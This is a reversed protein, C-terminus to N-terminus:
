MFHIAAEIGAIQGACLQLSGAADQIDGKIASLIAKSIIRRSTECIGIPRVGPCKNLAILRCALFASLGKPDRFSTCLSRAFMAMSNCLDWSASHFSTCLRRWCYADLGSPGAAGKTNLAASRICSSDIRDYIVPHVQPPEQHDLVLADAIAPQAPPHKSRLVELVSPSTPDDPNSHESSHLVGGEGRQSLLNLAASIKGKFMLNSFTRALNEGQRQASVVKPLRKQLCRGELTLSNIDGKAWTNLRRELCSANEKPKSNYAPKQLLLISMVTIAQLAVSELASQEAYARFLRSLEQVFKKGSNGLPVLFLNRKWHVTEAYAASLSHTFTEADCTGWVFTPAAMPSPSPLPQASIPTVPTASAEPLDLLTAAPAPPLLVLATNGAPSSSACSPTSTASSTPSTAIPLSHLDLRPPSAPLQKTNSCHGRRTPLCNTCPRRAKVCACSKCKGGANCRCCVTLKLDKDIGRTMAESLSADRRRALILHTTDYIKLGDLLHLVNYPVQSLLFTDYRHLLNPHLQVSVFLKRYAYEAM